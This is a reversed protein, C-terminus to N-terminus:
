ARSKRENVPSLATQTRGLPPQASPCGPPPPKLSPYQLSIPAISQAISFLYGNQCHLSSRLSPVDYDVRVPALSTRKADRDTGLFHDAHGSVDVPDPVSRHRNDLFQCCFARATSDAGNHAGVDGNRHVTRHPDRSCRARFSCLM